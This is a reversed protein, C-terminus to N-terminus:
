EVYSLLKYLNYMKIVYIVLNKFWRYDKNIEFVNDKNCSNSFRLLLKNLNKNQYM